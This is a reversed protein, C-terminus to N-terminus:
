ISRENLFPKPQELIFQHNIQKEFHRIFLQDISKSEAKLSAIFVQSPPFPNREIEIQVLEKKAIENRIYLSGSLHVGANKKIFHKILALNNTEIKTTYNLQLQNLTVDLLDRYQTDKQYTIFTEQLIEEVGVKKRKAFPHSPSVILNVPESFVSRYVIGRDNSAYRTIALQIERQKMLRVLTPSAYCQVKLAVKPYETL